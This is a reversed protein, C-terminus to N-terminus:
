AMWDTASLETQKAQEEVKQKYRLRRKALREEHKVEDAFVERMHRFLKWQRESVQRYYASRKGLVRFSYGYGIQGSLWSDVTLCFGFKYYTRYVGM